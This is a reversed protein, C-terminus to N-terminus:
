AVGALTRVPRLKFARRARCSRYAQVRNARRQERRRARDALRELLVCALLHKCWRAGRYEPARHKQDPCTCTHATLDVAYPDPECGQVQFSLPGLPQVKGLMLLAAAKEARAELDPCRKVMSRVYRQLVILSTSEHIDPTSHM